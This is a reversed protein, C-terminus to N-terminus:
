DTVRKIEEPTYEVQKLSEYNGRPFTIPEHEQHTLTATEAEVRVSEALEGEDAFAVAGAGFSHHHGTREGLALVAKALKRNSTVKNIRRLLVDGQRAHSGLKTLSPATPNSKM